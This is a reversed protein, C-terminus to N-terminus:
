SIEHSTNDGIIDGEDRHMMDNRIDDGHALGDGNDRISDRHIMDDAIDDWHTM